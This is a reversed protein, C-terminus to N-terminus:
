YAAAAYGEHWIYASAGLAPIEAVKKVYLNYLARQATVNYRLTM